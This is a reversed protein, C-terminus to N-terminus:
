LIILEHLARTCAVYLLKQDFTDTGVKYQEADFIIVADFELGKSLVVPFIVIGGEYGESDSNIYHINETQSFQQKLTKSAEQNRTLIAINEYGKDKLRRLQNKM